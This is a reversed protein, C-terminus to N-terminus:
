NSSFQKVINYKNRGDAMLICIDGKHVEKGCGVGDWGEQNDCLM